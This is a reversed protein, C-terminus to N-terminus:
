IPLHALIVFFGWIGFVNIAAVTLATIARAAPRLRRALVRRRYAPDDHRHATLVEAATQHLTAM